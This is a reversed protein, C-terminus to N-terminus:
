EPFMSNRFHRYAVSNDEPRMRGGRSGVDQAPMKLRISGQSASSGLAKPTAGPRLSTESSSRRAVPSPPQGGALEFGRQAPFFYPEDMSSDRLLGHGMTAGLPPQAGGVKSAGGLTAVHYRPLRGLNGVAEHKRMRTFKPPAAPSTQPSPEEKGGGNPLPARRGDRLHQQAPPQQQQQKRQGGAGSATSKNSAARSNLPPLLGVATNDGGNAGAVTGESVDGSKTADVGAVSEAKSPVRNSSSRQLSSAKEAGSTSTDIGLERKVEKEAIQLYQKRSMQTESKPGWGPGAKRKGLTELV